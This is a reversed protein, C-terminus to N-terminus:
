VIDPTALPIPETQKIRVTTYKGRDENESRQFLPKIWHFMACSKKKCGSSMLRSFSM